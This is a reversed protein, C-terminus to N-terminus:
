KAVALWSGPPLPNGRGELCMTEYWLIRSLRSNLSDCLKCPPFSVSPCLRHYLFQCHSPLASANQKPSNAICSVPSTIKKKSSPGFFDLTLCCNMDILPTWSCTSAMTREVGLYHSCDTRHHLCWPFHRGYASKCLRNCIFPKQRRISQVFPAYQINCGM